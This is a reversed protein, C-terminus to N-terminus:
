RRSEQHETEQDIRTCLANLMYLLSFYQLILSACWAGGTVVAHAIVFTVTIPQQNTALMRMQQFVFISM